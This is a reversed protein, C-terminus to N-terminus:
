FGSGTLMSDYEFPKENIEHFEEAFFPPSDHHVIGVCGPCAQALSNISLFITIAIIKIKM